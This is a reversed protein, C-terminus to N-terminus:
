GTGSEGRMLVNADTNAVQRALTIVQQMPFNKSELSAGTAKREDPTTMRKALFDTLRRIQEVTFPKTIYDVAGLKMTEVASDVTAYATMMVIRISPSQAKLQPILDSGSSSKLRLDVFAVDFDNRAAEQLADRASSVAVVSHGEAEFFTALTKRINTEDDVVLIRLISEMSATM